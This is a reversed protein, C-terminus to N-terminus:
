DNTHANLDGGADFSSFKLGAYNMLEVMKVRLEHFYLEGYAENVLEKSIEGGDWGLRKLPESDITVDCDYDIFKNTTKYPGIYQKQAVEVARKTKFNLIHPFTTPMLNDWIKSLPKTYDKVIDEEKYDGSWSM